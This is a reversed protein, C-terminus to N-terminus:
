TLARLYRRLGWTSLGNELLVGMAHARTFRNSTSLFHILVCQSGLNLVKAADSLEVYQEGSLEGNCLKEFKRFVILYHEDLGRAFAVVLSLMLRFLTKSVVHIIVAV